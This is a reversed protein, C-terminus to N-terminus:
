KKIHDAMGILTWVPDVTPNETTKKEVAVPWATVVTGEEAVSV